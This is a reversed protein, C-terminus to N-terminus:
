TQDDPRRWSAKSISSICSAGHVTCAGPFGILVTEDAAISALSWRGGGALALELAPAATGPLWTQPM